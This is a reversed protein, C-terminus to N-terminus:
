INNIIIYKYNEHKRPLNKYIVKKLTYEFMFAYIKYYM